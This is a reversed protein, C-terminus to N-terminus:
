IIDLYILNLFYIIINNILPNLFFFFFITSLELEKIKYYKLKTILEIFYKSNIIYLKKIM